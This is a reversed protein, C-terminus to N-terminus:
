LLCIYCTFPVIEQAANAEFETVGFYACDGCLPVSDFAEETLPKSSVLTGQTYLRWYTRPPAACCEVSSYILLSMCVILM